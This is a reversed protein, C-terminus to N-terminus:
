LGTITAPLAPQSEVWIADFRLRPLEVEAPVDFAAMGRAHNSHFRRVVHLDDAICFSDTLTRLGRPTRRCAIAHSYDRLLRLFRPATRELHQTDHLAIRVRGGDQLFRRLAADTAATGLDFLACDPDFADLTARARAMVAGLQMRFAARTDFPETVPEIM